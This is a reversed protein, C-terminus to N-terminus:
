ALPKWLLHVRTGKKPATDVSLSAGVMAAREQMGALGFHGQGLFESLDAPEKLRFGAGDDEVVLEVGGADIRGHIRLLRCRSHKMANEGAQQVIRFLHQEVLPDFRQHSLPVDLKVKVKAAARRDLQDAQELLAFYLGQDLLPPRLGNILARIQDVLGELKPSLAPSLQPALEGIRALTDDHLERALHVREAEQREVNSQYLARLDQAQSINVLAIAMQDALSRLLSLESQSYFDDPDKRGLLWLGRPQGGVQLLLSVQPWSAAQSLRVGEPLPSASGLAALQKQQARNPLANAPVGQQYVVRGAGQASLDLLASQRILLAPLVERTLLAALHQRSFSTSLRGAFEELLRRPAEPIGLIKREVLTQFRQFGFISFLATFLVTLVVVGGAGSLGPVLYTALPLALLAFTVLLVLFLYLSILRNARLELDGLRRRMVVYLYAGPLAILSLLYGPVVASADLQLTSLATAMAPLLAVGAGFLILLIERREVPRFFYRFLLLGLSGTLAVLFGSLYAEAELYGLWHGLTMLGAFAYLAPWFFRPLRGLQRPLMWHLHLYVPLSFWVGTRLVFPSFYIGFRSVTGAIFWIATIYNFAVFLAWRKDKPRLQMLSITGALWFAYSVPWTNLLRAFFEGLTFGPAQWTVLRTLGDREVLLEVVEGPRPLALPHPAQELRLVDWPQDGVMLIRDGVQLDTSPVYLEVVEAM